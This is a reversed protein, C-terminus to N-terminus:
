IHILSLILVMANFQTVMGLALLIDLLVLNVGLLPFYALILITHDVDLLEGASGLAGSWYLVALVVLAIVGHLVGCFLSTGLVAGLPYSDRSIYFFAGTGFGMASLPLVVVALTAVLSYTGLISAGLYKALIVAVALGAPLLLLRVAVMALSSRAAVAEVSDM